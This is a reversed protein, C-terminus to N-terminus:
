PQHLVVGVKLSLDIVIEAVEAVEAVVKSFVKM